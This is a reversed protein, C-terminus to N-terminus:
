DHRARAAGQRGSGARRDRRSGRVRDRAPMEERRAAARAPHVAGGQATRRAAARGAPGDGRRGGRDLRHQDGQLRQDVARWGGGAGAGAPAAARSVLAAPDDGNLVWVDRARANSFLLQKDHYYADVSAYRDLHDPALNTLIGIDPAFHPSDHLQFSSVEVALWQYRDGTVAIDTLPRG